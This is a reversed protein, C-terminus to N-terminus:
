LIGILKGFSAPHFVGVDMRCSVLFELQFFTGALRERNLEITIGQRLFIALQSWDGLVISSAASSMGQTQTIPMASTAFKKMSDWEAPLRLVDGTTANRLKAVSGLVRPSTILATPNANATQIDVLLDIYKDLATAAAFAAGDTGMSESAIGSTNFVGRPEQGSGSGILAVRDVEAAFVRALVDPLASAINVSDAYLERSVPVSVALTRAQLAISDFVPDSSAVAANEARWTPVPDTTVRAYTGKWADLAIVQAGAQQTVSAPRMKDVLEAFITTPVSYGGASNTGEALAREEAANKPGTVMARLVDGLRVSPRDPDVTISGRKTLYDRMTEGPALARVEAGDSGLEPYDSHRNPLDSVIRGASRHLADFQQSREVTATMTVIDEYMRDYRQQEDKTLARKERQATDLLQRANDILSRRQEILSQQPTTIAM